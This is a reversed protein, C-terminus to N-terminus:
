DVVSGCTLNAIAGTMAGGRDSAVFASFEAVEALTPARRLLSGQQARDALMTEVSVGARSAFGEFVVRAHSRPLTEPIADPRLCVVRVGSSGLEGALIRSFTETAGCTVGFGLFGVGALRAGPTSLTLIVGSGQQIMQLATAKATIFNAKMYATVPFLFDELSLEAFPPGQVHVIGIANLAVDIRGATAIVHEVHRSVSSPDLADVEAIDIVGGKQEIDVAVKELKSLTRGAIFVKAGERAFTRAVAGGIAGGGGYVIATKGRLLM